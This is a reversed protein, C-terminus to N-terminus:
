CHSRSEKEKDKFKQDIKQRVEMLKAMQAKAKNAFKSRVRLAPGIKLFLIPLPAFALSLFAPISSAWQVGLHDYMKTTFLPSFSRDAEHMFIALSYSYYNLSLIVYLAFAFLARVISNTAAATAAYLSYTDIIYNMIAIFVSVNGLGFFITGVIGVAWHVSTYTTFAFWFLGIPIMIAGWIAPELRMEPTSEVGPRAVKKRYKLELFVYLPVGLIQGVMVGVYALGSVGQGWHRDRIFVVPFAAFILYLIGYILAAYVAFVTSIPEWIAMIIPRTIATRLTSGLTKQPLGVDLKSMYAKGTEKNMRSARQRLIYPGYTEPELLLGLVLMLAFFLTCLVDVWRWGSGAALFNGCIPGLTPGLFPFMSYAMVALGREAPVFMDAVIGPSNSISASSVSGALFRLVLLAALDDKNCAISAGEFVVSAGLTILLIIQRGYLESLPGWLVPGVAFGLVFLCVTLIAVEETTHFYTIVQIIAGSFVTSALSCALTNFACIMVITWKLSPSLNLGNKPDGPIFDVVYPDDTTGAGPYDYELVEKTILTQDFVLKFHSPRSPPSAPVDKSDNSPSPMGM